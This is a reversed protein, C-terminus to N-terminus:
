SAKRVLRPIEGATIQDWRGVLGLAASLRPWVREASAYDIMREHARQALNQFGAGNERALDYGARLQDHLSQWVIRHWRTTVNQEPDHPWSAPEPHSEIELGLDASFYDTIATHNATIGPRRAAMFNQLPLCSGEARATNAYYTSARTLDV